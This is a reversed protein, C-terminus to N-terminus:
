PAPMSSRYGSTWDGANDSPTASGLSSWVVSGDATTVGAIDSFAPVVVGATGATVCIQTSQGGPMQPNDPFILQGVGVATGAITTWNLLNVIPVGVDAGSRTMTETQQSLEPQTLVPQTDARVVFVVRETRPRAADYQLVLSATVNWGLM